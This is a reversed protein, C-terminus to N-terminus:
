QPGGASSKGSSTNYIAGIVHGGRSTLKVRAAALDQIETSNPIVVLITGDVYPSLSEAAPSAALAPADIIVYEFERVLAEIISGLLLSRGRDSFAMQGAETAGLVWLGSNSIQACDSRRPLQGKQAMRGITQGDVLITTGLEEAVLTAMCSALYSVGSRRGTATLIVTRLQGDESPSFVQRILSSLADYLSEDMFAAVGARHDEHGNRQSTYTL